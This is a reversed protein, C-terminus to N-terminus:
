SFQQAWSDPLAQNHMQTTTSDGNKFDQIRWQLIDLNFEVCNHNINLLNVTVEVLSIMEPRNTLVLTRQVGQYFYICM